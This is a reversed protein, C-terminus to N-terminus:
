PPQMTRADPCNKENILKIYRLTAAAAHARVRLLERDVRQWRGAGVRPLDSKFADHVHQGTEGPGVTAHLSAWM